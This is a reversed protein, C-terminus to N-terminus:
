SIKFTQLNTGNFTKYCQAWSTQTRADDTMWHWLGNKGGNRKFEKTLIICFERKEDHFHVLICFLNGGKAGLSLTSFTQRM